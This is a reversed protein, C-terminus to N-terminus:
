KAQKKWYGHELIHEFALSSLAYMDKKLTKKMADMLSKNQKEMALDLQAIVCDMSLIIKEVIQDDELGRERHGDIRRGASLEMTIREGFLAEYMRKAEKEKMTFGKLITTHKKTPYCNDKRRSILPEIRINKLIIRIKGFFYIGIGILM